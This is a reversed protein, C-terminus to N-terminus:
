GKKRKPKRRPTVNAPLQTSIQTMDYGIQRKLPTGDASFLIVREEAHITPNISVRFYDEDDSLRPQQRYAM